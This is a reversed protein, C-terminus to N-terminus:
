VDNRGAEDLNKMSYFDPEVMRSGSKTKRRDEGQPVGVRRMHICLAPRKKLFLEHYYGGADPGSSIRVFGYLNLQRQFSSLRSQKFFRPMIKSVFREADHVGFARGHSFFSVIDEDGDKEVEELMRHLKEPFPETVGGRTRRRALDQSNPDALSSADIYLSTKTRMSSGLAKLTGDRDMTPNVGQVAMHDIHPGGQLVMRGTFPNDDTLALAQQRILQLRELNMQGRAAELLAQNNPGLLLGLSAQNSAANLSQVRHQYAYIDQLPGTSASGAAFHHSAPYTSPLGMPLLPQSNGFFGPPIRAVSGTGQFAAALFAEQATLHQTARIKDQTSLSSAM